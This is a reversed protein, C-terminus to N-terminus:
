GNNHKNDVLYFSNLIADVIKEKGNKAIECDHKSTHFLMEVLVAPCLTNKIVYFNKKSVGNCKLGVTKSIKQSIINALYESKKSCNKSVFCKSGNAEYWGNNGAANTHLSVFYINPIPDRNYASSSYFQNCLANSNSVRDKLKMSLTKDKQYDLINIIQIKSRDHKENILDAIERVFKWEFFGPPIEPSKKGRIDKGHGPDLIFVTKNGNM